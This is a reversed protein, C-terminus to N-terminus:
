DSATMPAAVAVLRNHGPGGARGQVVYSDNSAAAAARRGTRGCGVAESKQRSPSRSPM